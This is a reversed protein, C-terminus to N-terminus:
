GAAKNEPAGGKSKTGSGAEPPDEPALADFYRAAEVLEPPCEEGAEIMIPYVYGDPCGFFSKAVKMPTTRM